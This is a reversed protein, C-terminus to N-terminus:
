ENNKVEEYYKDINFKPRKEGWKEALRQNHFDTLALEQKHIINKLKINEKSNKQAISKYYELEDRLDELAICMVEADIKRELETLIIVNSEDVITYEDFEDKIIKYYSM